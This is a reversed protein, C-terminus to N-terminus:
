YDKDCADETKSTLDEPLTDLGPNTKRKAKLAAASLKKATGTATIEHVTVKRECHHIMASSSGPGVNEDVSRKAVRIVGLYLTKPNTVVWRMKVSNSISAGAVAPMEQSHFKLIQRLRGKVATYVETVEVSHYQRETYLCRNDGEQDTKVKFVPVGLPEMPLEVEPKPKKGLFMQTKVPTAMLMMSGRAGVQKALWYVQAADDAKRVCRRPPVHRLELFAGLLTGYDNEVKLVAVSGQKPMAATQGDPLYRSLIRRVAIEAGPKSQTLEKLLAQLTPKAAATRAAPARRERPPRRVPGPEAKPCGSLTTALAAVFAVPLWGLSRLARM